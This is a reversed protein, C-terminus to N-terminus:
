KEGERLGNCQSEDVKEAEIVGAGAPGHPRLTLKYVGRVPFDDGRQLEPDYIPLVMTEGTGCMTAVIAPVAVYGDGYKAWLMVWYGEVFMPVPPYTTLAKDALENSHGIEGDNPRAFEVNFKPADGQVSQVAHPLRAQPKGGHPVLLVAGATVLGLVALVALVLVWPRRGGGGHGVVAKYTTM